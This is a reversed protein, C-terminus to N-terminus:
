DHLNRAEDFRSTGDFYIKLWLVTCITWISLLPLYFVLMKAGPWSQPYAFSHDSFENLYFSMRQVKQGLYAALTISTTYALWSWGALKFPLPARTLFILTGGFLIPNLKLLMRNQWEMGNPYKFFTCMLLYFLTACVLPLWWRWSRRCIVCSFLALWPYANKWYFLGFAERYFVEPAQKIFTATMETTIFDQTVSNHGFFQKLDTFYNTLLLILITAAATVLVASISKLKEKASPTEILLWEFAILIGFLGINERRVQTALSMAALLVLFYRRELNQAYYRRMAFYTAISLALFEPVHSFFNRIFMWKIMSTSVLSALSITLAPRWPSFFNFSKFLVLVSVCGCFIVGFNIMCYHIVTPRIGLGLLRAPLQFPALILGTGWPHHNHNRAWSSIYPSHTLDPDLLYGLSYTWHMYSTDDGGDFWGASSGFPMGYWSVIVALSTLIIASSIWPSPRSMFLLALSCGLIFLTVLNFFNSPLESGAGKSSLTLEYVVDAYLSMIVTTSDEPLTVVERTLGSYGTGIDSSKWVTKKTKLDTVILANVPPKIFQGTVLYKSAPDSFAVQLPESNPLKTLKVTFYDQFFFRRAECSIEGSIANVNQFGLTDCSVQSKTALRTWQKTSILAIMACSVALTFVLIKQIRNM